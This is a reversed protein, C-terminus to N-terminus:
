AGLGYAFSALFLLGGVAEPGLVIKVVVRGANEPLGEVDVASCNACGARKGPLSRWVTTMFAREGAQAEVELGEALLAEEHQTGTLVAGVAWGGRGVNTPVAVERKYTFM